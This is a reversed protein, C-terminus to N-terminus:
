TAEHRPCTVTVEERPDPPFHNMALTMSEDANVRIIFLSNNAQICALLGGIVHM